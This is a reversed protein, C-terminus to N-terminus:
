EVLKLGFKHLMSLQQLLVAEVAELAKLFSALDEEDVQVGLAIASTIRLAAEAEVLAVSSLLSATGSLSAALLRLQEEVRCKVTVDFRQKLGELRCHLSCLRLVAAAVSEEKSASFALGSLSCSLSTTSSTIPASCCCM